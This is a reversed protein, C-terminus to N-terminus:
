AVEGRENITVPGTVPKARPLTKRAKVVFDENGPSASIPRLWSDPIELRKGQIERPSCHNEGFWVSCECLWWDPGLNLVGPVRVYEIVKVIKDQLAMAKEFTPHVFAIDDKKCNM